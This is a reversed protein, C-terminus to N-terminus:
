YAEVDYVTKNFFMNYSKGGYFEVSMHYLGMYAGPLCEGYNPFMEFFDMIMQANMGNRIVGQFLLDVHKKNYKKYLPARERQQQKAKEEVQAINNLYTQAKEYGQDAAKKYWEKAKSKSKTVGEGNEYCVGLNCQAVALGKEAAMTYWKVAEKDNETVGQGEDYMLAVINMAELNGQDAAKRCWKMAEVYDKNVGDGKRYCKGLEYQADAYGQDAALRYWKVAEKSSKSVGYGGSYCVGLNNQGEADGQAAAKDFWNFANNYNQSVGHGYFYCDGIANQAKVNGLTAAFMYYKVAEDYNKDEYYKAGKSYIEVANANSDFEYQRSVKYSNSNFPLSLTQIEIEKVNNQPPISVGDITSLVEINSVSSISRTYSTEKTLFRDVPIEMVLAGDKKNYMRIKGGAGFIVNYKDKEYYYERNQCLYVKGVYAVYYEQGDISAESINYMLDSLDFGYVGECKLSNISDLETDTIAFELFTQTKKRRVNVVSIASNNKYGEIKMMGDDFYVVARKQREPSDISYFLQTAKEHGKDALIALTSIAKREDVKVGRGYLYCCAYEYAADPNEIDGLWTFAIKELYKNYRSGLSEMALPHGKEYAKRLYKFGKKEDKDVGGTGNFYFCGVTYLSELDKNANGELVKSYYSYYQKKADEHGQLSSLYLWKAATEKNQTIEEGIYYDMGVEYQAQADGSKAAKELEKSYFSYFKSTAEAHGQKTALHFWKGATETNKSVGNGDFYDMGVEYQAKADGNKASKELEKSYFSYFISSAEVHGQKTALHFWKGATETNKTVGDGIYYDMGVEYQAQVDGSKAFKELEKSYFSYLKNKAEDNNNLTAKYYWKAANAKDAAIGDGNFYANAVALQASVDGNKAKKELDKSWAQAWLPVAVVLMLLTFLFKKM